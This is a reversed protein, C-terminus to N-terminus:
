KNNIRTRNDLIYKVREWSINLKLSIQRTNIGTDALEFVQPFLTKNKEIYKLFRSEYQSESWNTGKRAESSKLCNALRNQIAKETWEKHRMKEISELKHKRGKVMTPGRKDIGIQHKVRNIPNQFPHNNKMKISHSESFIKREYEYLKSSPIYRSHLKNSANSLMHLAYVMKHRQDNVLMKTLLLHCIFHERATLEIINSKENSGGLTKPVIHHKEVYGVNKRTSANKIISYYWTTYKNQLFLM